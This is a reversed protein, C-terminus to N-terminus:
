SALTDVIPDHGPALQHARALTAPEIPAEILRAMRGFEVEIATAVENTDVAAEEDLAGTRSPDWEYGLASYVSTLVTNVLDSRGVVVVGGVHAASAVLHQGVGALKRRGAVNVSWAGPCYEGSIEGVRADIGLSRFADRMMDGVMRFREHIGARPERIPIAWSFALTAEHFVAAKGGALRVIPAFGAARAAGVAEGFGPRGTDQRGFAVIRNPTYLRLTEPRSGAAVAELIAHSIGTDVLPEAARHRLLSVQRIM